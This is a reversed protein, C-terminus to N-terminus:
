RDEGLSVWLGGKVALVVDSVIWVRDRGSRARGDGKPGLWNEPMRCDEAKAEERIFLQRCKHGDDLHELLYFLFTHALTLALPQGLCQQKLLWSSDGVWVREGDESRYELEHFGRAGQGYKGMQRHQIGRCGRGM